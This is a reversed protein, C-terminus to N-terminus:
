SGGDAGGSASTGEEPGAVRIEFRVDSPDKFLELIPSHADAEEILNRVEEAPAPSKVNVVCRIQSYGAPTDGVGYMGGADYDTQIEVDIEELVVDRYAAWM